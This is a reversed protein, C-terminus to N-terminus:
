FSLSNIDNIYQLYMFLNLISPLPLFNSLTLPFIYNLFCTELSYLTLYIYLIIIPFLRLSFNQKCQQPPFSALFIFLNISLPTLIQYKCNERLFSTPGNISISCSTTHYPCWFDKSKLIRCLQTFIQRCSM